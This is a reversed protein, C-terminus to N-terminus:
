DTFRWRRGTNTKWTGMRIILRVRASNPKHSENFGIKPLDKMIEICIQNLGLVIFSHGANGVAAQPNLVM